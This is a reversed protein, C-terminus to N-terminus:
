GARTVKCFTSSTTPSNNPLQLRSAARAQLAPYNVVMPGGAEMGPPVTVAIARGDPLRLELQQGPPMGPPVQVTMQLQGPAMGPPVQM